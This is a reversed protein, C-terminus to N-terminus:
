STPPDQLKLLRLLEGIDHGEQAPHRMATDTNVHYRNRRGTRESEVYGSEILDAVIRQAARETIGVQEAIDRFRVTPDRWSDSGKRRRHICLVRQTPLEHALAALLSTALTDTQRQSPVVRELLGITRQERRPM